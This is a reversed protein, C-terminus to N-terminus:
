VEWCACGVPAERLGRCSQEKRYGSPSSTQSDGGRMRGFSCKGAHSAASGPVTTHVNPHSPAPSVATLSTPRGCSRGRRDTSNARRRVTEESARPLSSGPIQQGGGKVKGGAAGRAEVMFAAAMKGSDPQRQRRRRRTLLFPVQPHPSASHPNPSPDTGPGAAAFPAQRTRDTAGEVLEMGGRQVGEWCIRSRPRTHRGGHQHPEAQYATLSKSGSDTAPSQAPDQQARGRLVGPGRFLGEVQSGRRGGGALWAGAIIISCAPLCM